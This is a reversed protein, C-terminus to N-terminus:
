SFSTIVFVQSPLSVVIYSTILLSSILAACERVRKQLLENKAILQLADADCVVSKDTHRLVYEVMHYATEDQLRGCGIVISNSWEM